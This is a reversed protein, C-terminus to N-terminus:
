GIKPQQFNKAFISTITAINKAQGFEILPIKLQLTAMSRIIIEARNVSDAGLEKLSDNMTIPHNTLEPIVDIIVQKIVDFIQNQDM